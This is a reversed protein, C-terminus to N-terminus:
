REVGWDHQNKVSVKEEGRSELVHFGSAHLITPGRKFLITCPPPTHPTRHGGVGEVCENM